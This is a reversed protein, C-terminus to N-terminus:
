YHRKKRKTSAIVGTIVGSLLVGPVVAAFQYPTGKYMLSHTLLLLLLLMASDILSLILKKEKSQLCTIASAIVAGLCAAIIGAASLFKEPIIGNVILAGFLIAGGFIAIAGIGVGLLMSQAVSGNRQKKM